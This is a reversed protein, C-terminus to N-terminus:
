FAQSIATKYNSTALSSPFISHLPFVHVHRLRQPIKHNKLTVLDFKSWWLFKEFESFEGCINRFNVLNVVFTKFNVLNVVYAESAEVLGVVFNDSEYLFRM